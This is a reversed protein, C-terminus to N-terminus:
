EPGGSGGAKLEEASATELKGEEWCGWSRGAERSGGEGGGCEQGKKMKALTFGLPLMESAVIPDPPGM